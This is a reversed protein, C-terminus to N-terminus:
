TSYKDATRKKQSPLFWLVYKVLSFSSLPPELFSKMSGSGNPDLSFLLGNINRLSWFLLHRQQLSLGALVKIMHGGLYIYSFFVQPISPSAKALYKGVKWFWSPNIAVRELASFVFSVVQPLEGSLDSSQRELEYYNSLM